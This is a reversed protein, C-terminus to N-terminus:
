FQMPPLKKLSEFLRRRLTGFPIESSHYVGLAPEAGPTNATFLYNYAPYEKDKAIYADLLLRRVSQFIADGCISALRKYQNTPGYFRDDKSVNVPNYPSGLAPVDPYLKLLKPILKTQFSLSAAKDYLNEAFTNNLVFETDLYCQDPSNLM